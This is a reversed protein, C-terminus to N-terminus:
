SLTYSECQYDAGDLYYVLTSGPIKVEEGKPDERRSDGGGDGQETPANGACWAGRPCRRSKQIAFVLSRTDRGAGFLLFVDGGLGDRRGPRVMVMRRALEMEQHTERITDMTVRSLTFFFPQEPFGPLLLSHGDAPSLCKGQPEVLPHREGDMVVQPSM